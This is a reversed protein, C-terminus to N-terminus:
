SSSFAAHVIEINLLGIGNLSLQQPILVDFPMGLSLKGLSQKIAMEGLSVTSLLKDNGNNEILLRVRESLKPSGMIFWLFSHTDLLLKM